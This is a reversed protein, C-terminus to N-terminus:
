KLLEIGDKLLPYPNINEGEFYKTPDDLVSISFHLHYNEPGANGTNGVYGITTGQKIFDGEKIDADRKELHAYYYVYRKDSSYQYITIGGRESDFFKVIEGDSVAVVPTGLPAIIDIANHVRGESRADNFTDILQDRKIGAVPIMLTGNNTEPVFDNQNTNWNTNENFETNSKDGPYPTITPLVEPETPLVEPEIPSKVNEINTENFTVLPDYFKEYLFGLALLHIIILYVVASTKGIRQLSSKM